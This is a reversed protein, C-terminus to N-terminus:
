SQQNLVTHLVIEYLSLYREESTQVITKRTEYEYKEYLPIEWENCEKWQDDIKSKYQFVEKASYEIVKPLDIMEAITM